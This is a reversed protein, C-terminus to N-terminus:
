PKIVKTLITRIIGPPRNLFAWETMAEGTTEYPGIAEFVHEGLRVPRDFVIIYKLM